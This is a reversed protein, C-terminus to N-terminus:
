IYVQAAERLEAETLGSGQEIDRWSMAAVSGSLADFDRCHAAIFDRDEAGAELVAKILGNVAALDGGVRPTYYHSALQVGRGTLLEVPHKPDAFKELGRERLPNFVVIRCGRKAAE